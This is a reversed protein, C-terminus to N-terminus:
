NRHHHEHGGDAGGELREAMELLRNVTNWNRSTGSKKLANELLPLLKSKGVGNPFHIYLERDDVRLEEPDTRIKLIADRTARDPRRALFMVVFKGPDMAERTAFPNRAVVSRLHSSTRLIVGPRFGFKGEIAKEIQVSLSDLDGADARFVVNGSQVYTQPEGFGLSEYLARLRKMEIKHHGGVNVGRLMSVIIPM